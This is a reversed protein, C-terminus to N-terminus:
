RDPAQKQGEDVSSTENGVEEVGAARLKRREDRVNNMASITQELRRKIDARERLNLNPDRLQSELQKIQRDYQNIQTTLNTIADRFPNTADDTSLSFEEEPRTVLERQSGGADVNLPNVSVQITAKELERRARGAELRELQVANTYRTSTAPTPITMTTQSCLRDVRLRGARRLTPKDLSRNGQLKGFDGLTLRDTRVEGARVFEVDVAEGPDYSVIAIRADLDTVVTMDNIKRLTDGPQFVRMSDFGAVPDGIVVGEARSRSGAFSVGMAARPGRDFLKFAIDSMAEIQEPTLDRDKLKTELKRLNPLTIAAIEESIEIQRNRDFAMSLRTELDALPALMLRALEERANERVKWDEANMAKVYGGLKADSIGDEAFVCGTAATLVCVISMTRLFTLPM